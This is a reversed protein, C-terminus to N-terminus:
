HGISATHPLLKYLRQEYVHMLSHKGSSDNHCRKVSASAQQLCMGDEALSHIRGCVESWSTNWSGVDDLVSYVGNVRSEGYYCWLGCVGVSYCWLYWLLTICVHCQSLNAYWCILSKFRSWNWLWLRPKSTFALSWCIASCVCSIQSFLACVSSYTRIHCATFVFVAATFM